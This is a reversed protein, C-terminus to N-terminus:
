RNKMFDELQESPMPKGLFYGQAEECGEARLFDLHEQTEVGEAMTKLELARAMSIIARVLSADSKNVIVDRIFSRDIKIKDIPFLKLSSLSSYGTGFDDLSLSIDAKKFDTLAQSVSNMNKMLISETLELEIYKSELGTENIIKIVSKVFGDERFQRASLNVAMTIDPLGQEQWAKAQKCATRLVWEGIQIILGTEEAVPIFEAPPILGKQPHQWRVLAEVGTMVGSNLDIQPQYYLVLEEEKIARRLGNQVSLNLSAQDTMEVNYRQHRNRGMEKARYMATDANRLLNDANTDDLPYYSYGISFSVFLEREQINFPAKFRDIVSQVVHEIEEVYALEPIIVAFEDGGFRSITDSARFGEKLRASVAQLLLDGVLHGLTDNIDKFHDIDMFLVAVFHKNRDATRCSQKLHEKFLTRNPLGTLADYYAMYTIKQETRKNETVDEAISAVGIVQGIDNVLPTNYWECLIVNGEKTVNKNTSRYGGEGSLIDAWIESVHSKINEPIILDMAARGKAETKTYGFIREAAPNWEAVNFDTDWEIIALPSQEFHLVFRETAKKLAEEAHKRETIDRNIGRYGMLTGEEDIIPVGSTEVIVIRGDKHRNANELAAFPRGEKIIATSEEAIRGAEEEHMLDFPTKGIIEDAEYGLIEEVKPSTYIYRMNADVEWIWDSSSEVLSRFRAESQVLGKKSSELQQEVRRTLLFFFLLLMGSIAIGLGVTFLIHHISQKKIATVDRLFLIKGIELDTQGADTLPLSYTQFTRDDESLEVMTQQLDSSQMLYKRITANSEAATTFAIVSKPMLDWEAKRGLMKMGAEWDKPSLIRKNIIVYLDLNIVDKIRKYLHEIEEGLELYGILKENKYWPFVVRLTFLGLPGTELASAPAGTAEAQLASFRDIKDGYRDPQHVRLFNVRDPRHFYFHTIGYKERLTNFLPSSQKLLTDRDGVMMARKLKSDTSIIMLATSLKETDTKVASDFFRKASLFQEGIAKETYEKEQHIYSSIFGSILIVLVLMLPLLVSTKLSFHPLSIKKM